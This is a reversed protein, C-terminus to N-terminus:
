VEMEGVIGFDFPGDFGLGQAVGEADVEMGADEYLSSGSSGMEEKIGNVM